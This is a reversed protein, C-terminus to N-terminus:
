SEACKAFLLAADVHFHGAEPILDPPKPDLHTLQLAVGCLDFADRSVLETQEALRLYDDLESTSAFSRQASEQSGGSSALCPVEPSWAKMVTERARRRTQSPTM